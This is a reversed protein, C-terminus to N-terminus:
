CQIDLRAFRTPLEVRTSSRAWAWPVAQREVILVDGCLQPRRALNRVAVREEGPDPFQAVALNASTWGDGVQEVLRRFEAGHNMTTRRLGFVNVMAALPADAREWRQNRWRFVELSKDRPAAFYSWFQPAIALMQTRGAVSPRLPSDLWAVCAVCVIAGAFLRAISHPRV